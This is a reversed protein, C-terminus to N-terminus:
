PDNRDIYITYTATARQALSKQIQCNPVATRMVLMRMSGVILQNFTVDRPLYITGCVVNHPNSKIQSVAKKFCLMTYM